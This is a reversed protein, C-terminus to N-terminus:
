LYFGFFPTDSGKIRHRESRVSTKVGEKIRSRREQERADKMDGTKQEQSSEKYRATPAASAVSLCQEARLRRRGGERAEGSSEWM